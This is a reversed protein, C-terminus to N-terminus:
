TQEQLLLSYNECDRQRLENGFGEHSKLSHGVSGKEAGPIAIQEVLCVPLSSGEQQTDFAKKSDLGAAETQANGASASGYTDQTSNARQVSVLKLGKWDVRALGRQVSVLKLGRWDVQSLGRQVSVFKLGRWDVRALGRQVSM